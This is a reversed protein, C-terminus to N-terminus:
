PGLEKLQINRITVEMGPYESHLQWAIIGDDAIEPFHDDVTAQGNLKITVRKAVCRISYDNFETAKVIERVLKQQPLRMWRGPEREGYLGGWFPRGMDGQPGAVAFTAPDVLRSRVQVGSNGKGDTIRVQCTLEFNKYRKKSCLFSHFKLGAAPARGVIAGDQVSWYTTNGEWGTFDRGNFFEDSAEPACGGDGGSPIDGRRFMPNARDGRSFLYAILDLVENRDLSDLLGDPMMSVPSAKIEEIDGRRVGAMRSPDLMDTNIMLRDNSLNVIRGTVVRGDVTAITVAEYQDSIAKSPLVISELLDRTSFRGAVGSLDPGLGGGEDNCRHCAFCRAAAFLTRGRDFDREKLGDEVLPVLEDLTWKKFFPREIAPAGASSAASQVQLIPKLRAKEPEALHAVADRKINALFGRLSNGGRFAAAKLFWSFYAERLAPTWGADLVRLARAYELQEEQTLARELLGVTKAAADPAQLYVLLQALEANCERSPAPYHQDLRRTLRAITAEDPRGFRNLVVQYLRLLDLQRPQDLKEWSIQDLAALIRDRIGPDPPPEGHPRHAPDRASVHALALVANLAAEPDSTERLARDRWTMPSQWEVAVRAAWRVFRDSDGLYPWAADVAGPAALGHFAELQHRRARSAVAARAEDPRAPATSESGVYTVRYMGSQTMRGGVTLYMAGDRPNVVVDTLALPTGALFEEMEGTYTSDRPTLHLAYLKGYSWDCLYLAEQFRAPFRAGYGFAIGTPSGPGVDVVPPLSDICYPPWKGAGNRYGFESGSTVHLVRTPRYWPTRIDWEMDSDYTFLEGDRNFALDFPNRYGISVLEWKKGDPSVRYIHGGPAKEGTMFGGGDVMRPLLNDEGWVKPVRSGDIATLRTANGAVVYLSQGDPGLVVGHPGHEGGGSLKHLLEVADLRDDGDTDRVRYLGSNYKRGRNVVVYLSDFAWLLGHAEGIAVDIPEVRVVEARGAEMPPTVRYLKGYQDSVILRGKPEVAMNVWSGQTERPVSYILEVRFGKPVKVRAAPTSTSKTATRGRKEVMKAVRKGEFPFSASHGQHEVSVVGRISDGQPKGRFTLTLSEGDHNPAVRFSLTGGKVALDRAVLDEDALDKLSGTLREGERSLVLVPTHEEGSPTTFKLSWTGALETAVPDEAAGAVPVALTVCAVLFLSSVSGSASTACRRMAM